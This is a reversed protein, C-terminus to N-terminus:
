QDDPRALRDEFWDHQWCCWNEWSLTAAHYITVDEPASKKLRDLFDPSTNLSCVIEDVIRKGDITSEGLVFFVFGENKYARLIGLDRLEKPLYPATTIENRSAARGASNLLTSRHRDFNFECGCRSRYSVKEARDYIFFLCAAVGAAALLVISIVKSKKM